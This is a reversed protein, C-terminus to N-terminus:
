HSAWGVVTEVFGEFCIVGLDGLSMSLGGEVKKVFEGRGQM